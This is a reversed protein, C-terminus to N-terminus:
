QKVFRTISMDVFCLVKFQFVFTYILFRLLESTHAWLRNHQILTQPPFRRRSSFAGSMGRIRQRWPPRPGHYGHRGGSSTHLHASILKLGKQKEQIDMRLCHYCIFLCSLGMRPSAKSSWSKQIDNAEYYLQRLWIKPNIKQKAHFIGSGFLHILCITFLQIYM